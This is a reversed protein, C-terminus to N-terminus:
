TDEEPVLRIGEYRYRNGILTNYRMSQTTNGFANALGCLLTIYSIHAGIVDDTYLESNSYKARIVDIIKLKPNEPSLPSLIHDLYFMISQRVSYAPIIDAMTDNKTKSAANDPNDKKLYWIKTVFNKASTSKIPTKNTRVYQMNMEKYVDNDFWERFVKTDVIEKTFIDTKSKDDTLPEYTVNPTHRENNGYMYITKERTKENIREVDGQSVEIMADVIYNNNNGMKMTNILSERISSLRDMNAKNDDTLIWLIGDMDCIGDERTFLENTYVEYNRLAQYIETPKEPTNLIRCPYKVAIRINHVFKDIGEYKKIEDCLARENLIPQAPARRIVIPSHYVYLESDRPFKIVTGKENDILAYGGRIKSAHRNYIFIAFLLCVICILEIIIVICCAASKPPM